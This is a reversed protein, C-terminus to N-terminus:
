PKFIKFKINEYNYIKFLKYLPQKKLNENLQSLVIICNQKIERLRKQIERAQNDDLIIAEEGNILKKIIEETAM